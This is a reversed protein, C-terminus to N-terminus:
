PRDSGFFADFIESVTEVKSCRSVNDGCFFLGDEWNGEYADILAQAICFAKREKKYSCFTLCNAICPKSEVDGSLYRNVFPNKLARGPIGVPSMIVVVDDDRADLFAQKFRDSADGEVTCAFRTGVQIGRAGLAFMSEMDEATWLGGAAIVPINAKFEHEVVQVLDPVVRELSFAPDVVHEMKTAGLHGGAHLPTEVVFGDPLRGYSKEWKKVILQAARVSSVIPVLAVDPYDRTLEPLKLPLGAGTILVDVGSECSAKIHLDYDTLAVMANVALVGQPATKRAEQVADRLALQNAEFYNRGQFYRPSRCAVGVSAITGVGGERAVAGALKPGSILVGM